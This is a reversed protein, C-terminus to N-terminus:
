HPQKLLRHEGRRGRVAYIAPYGHRAWGYLIGASGWWLIDASYGQLAWCCLIGAHLALGGLIRANGCDGVRLLMGATGRHKVVSYALTWICIKGETGSRLTDRCHGLAQMAVAACGWPKGGREFGVVSNRGVESYGAWGLLDFANGWLARIQGQQAWSPIVGPRIFFGLSM